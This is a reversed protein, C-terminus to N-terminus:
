IIMLMILTTEAGKASHTESIDEDAESDGESRLMAKEHQLHSSFLNIKSVSEDDQSSSQIPNSQNPNLAVNLM